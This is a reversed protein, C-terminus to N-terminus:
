RLEHGPDDGTQASLAETGGPTVGTTGPLALSSAALAISGPDDRVVGTINFIKNLGPDYAPHERIMGSTAPLTVSTSRDGTTGPDSRVDVPARRLKRPM